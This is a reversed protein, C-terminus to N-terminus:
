FKLAILDGQFNATRSGPGYIIFKRCGDPIIKYDKIFSKYGDFNVLQVWFKASEWKPIVLVGSANQFLMQKIVNSIESIPPVLWNNDKNWKITFANVCESGENEFKSNFRPIQKNFQDAFRDITFPGWINNIYDFLVPSIRWDDYDIYKSVSDSVNNLERPIWQIQLNINESKCIDFIEIAIQQLKTKNSGIEVIRSAAFNDTYWLINRNKLTNRFVKVSYCIAFMERWTSSEQMEQLSFNKHTIKHGNLIAGLAHSSADSYCVITSAHCNIINRTNKFSINDRWFLLAENLGNFHYRNVKTDWNTISEIM